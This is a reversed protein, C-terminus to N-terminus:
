QKCVIQEFQVSVLFHLCDNKNVLSDDEVLASLLKIKERVLVSHQKDNAEVKWCLALLMWFREVDYVFSFLHYLFTQDMELCVREM